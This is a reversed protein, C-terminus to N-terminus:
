VVGRPSIINNSEGEVAGYQHALPADHVQEGLQLPRHLADLRHLRCHHVHLHLPLFLEPIQQLDGLNMSGCYFMLLADLGFSM